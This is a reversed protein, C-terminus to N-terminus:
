INAAATHTIWCIKCRTYPPSCLKNTGKQGLVRSYTHSPVVEPLMYFIDQVERYTGLASLTSMIVLTKQYTQAHKKIVPNPNHYFQVKM